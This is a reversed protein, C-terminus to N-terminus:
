PSATARPALTFGRKTTQQSFICANTAPNSAGGRGAAARNSAIAKDLKSQLSILELNDAASLRRASPLPTPQAAPHSAATKHTPRSPPSIGDLHSELVICDLVIRALRNFPLTPDAQKRAPASKLDPAGGPQPPAAQEAITKAAIVEAMQLALEALRACARKSRATHESSAIPAPTNMPITLKTTLSSLQQM